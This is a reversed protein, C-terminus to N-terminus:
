PTPPRLRVGGRSRFGAGAETLLRYAAGYSRGSCQALSRRRDLEDRLLQHRSDEENM